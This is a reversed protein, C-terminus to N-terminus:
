RNYERTDIKYWTHLMNPGKYSKNQSSPFFMNNIIFQIRMISTIYACISYNIQNIGSFHLTSKGILIQKEIIMIIIRYDTM